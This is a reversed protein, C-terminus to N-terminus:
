LQKCGIVNNVGAFMKAKKQIVADSKIASLPYVHQVFGSAPLCAASEMFYFIAAQM